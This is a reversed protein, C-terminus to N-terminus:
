KASVETKKKTSGYNLAMKMIEFITGQPVDADTYKVNEIEKYQSLQTFPKVYNLDYKTGVIADKLNETIKIFNKTNTVGPVMKPLMYALEDSMVVAAGALNAMVSQYLLNRLTSEWQSEGVKGLKSDILGNIPVMGTISLMQIEYKWELLKSVEVSYFKKEIRNLYYNYDDTNVGSPIKVKLQNTESLMQSLLNFFLMARKAFDQATRYFVVRTTYLSAEEKMRKIAQELIEITHEHDIRKKKEDTWKEKYDDAQSKTEKYQKNLNEYKTSWEEVAKKIAEQKEEDARKLKENAAELKKDKKELELNLKKVQNELERLQQSNDETQRQNKSAKLLEAYASKEQDRAADLNKLNALAVTDSSHLLSYHEKIIRDGDAFVADVSDNVSTDEEILPLPLYYFKHKKEDKFEKWNDDVRKFKARLPLSIIMGGQGDKTNHNDILKKVWDTVEYVNYGLFHPAYYEKVLRQIFKDKNNISIKINEQWLIPQSMAHGEKPKEVRTKNRHNHNYQTM